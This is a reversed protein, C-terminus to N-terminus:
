SQVGNGRKMVGRGCLVAQRGADDAPVLAAACYERGLLRLTKRCRGHVTTFHRGEQPGKSRRKLTGVKQRPPVNLPGFDTSNELLEHNTEWKQSYQRLPRPVAGPRGEALAPRVVLLLQIRFSWVALLGLQRVALLLVVRRRLLGEAM